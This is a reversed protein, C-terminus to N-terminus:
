LEKGKRGVIPFWRKVEFLYWYWVNNYSCLKYKRYTDYFAIKSVLNQRIKGQKLYNSHKNCIKVYPANKWEVKIGLSLNTILILFPIYVLFTSIWRPKLNSLLYPFKLKTNSSSIKPSRYCIQTLLYFNPLLFIWYTLKQLWSLNQHWFNDKIVSVM